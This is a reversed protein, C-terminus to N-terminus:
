GRSVAAEAHETSRGASGQSQSQSQSAAQPAATSVAKRTLPLEAPFYTKALDDNIRALALQLRDIFGHLEEPTLKRGLAGALARRVRGVRRLLSDSNPLGELVVEM